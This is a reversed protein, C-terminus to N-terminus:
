EGAAFEGMRKLINPAGKVPEGRTVLDARLHRTLALKSAPTESQLLEDIAQRRIMQMGGAPQEAPRYSNGLAAGWARLRGLLGSELPKPQPQARAMVLNNNTRLEWLRRMDETSLPTQEDQVFVIEGSTRALGTQVASPIGKHRGHRASRVQPFQRALEGAVEDTHDTSGDDVILVEFQPTLEPLVDLLRAVQDALRSEANYVPLVISLSHDM